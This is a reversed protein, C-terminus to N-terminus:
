PFRLLYSNIPSKARYVKLIRFEFNDSGATLRSDAESKPQM